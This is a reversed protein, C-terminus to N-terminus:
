SCWARGWAPTGSCRARATGCHFRASTPPRTSGGVPFTSTLTGSAGSLDVRYSNAYEYGVALSIWGERGPITYHSHMSRVTRITDGVAVLVWTARGPATSRSHTARVIRVTDAGDIAEPADEPRQVAEVTTRVSDLLVTTDPQGGFPGYLAAFGGRVAPHPDILVVREPNRIDRFGLSGWLIGGTLRSVAPSLANFQAHAPKVGCACAFVALIVGISGAASKM